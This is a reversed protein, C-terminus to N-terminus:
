AVETSTVTWQAGRATPRPMPMPMPVQEVLRQEVCEGVLVHVARVRPDGLRILRGDPQVGPEAEPVETRVLLHAV